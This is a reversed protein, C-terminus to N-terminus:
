VCRSTYLLCTKLEAEAGDIKRLWADVVKRSDSEGPAAELAAASIDTELKQLDDRMAAQASLDWRGVIPLEGIRDVLMDMGLVEAVKFMVRATEMLDRGTRQATQVIPLAM